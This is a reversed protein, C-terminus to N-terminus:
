CGKIEKENNHKDFLYYFYLLIKLAKRRSCNENVKRTQEISRELSESTMPSRSFEMILNEMNKNSLKKTVKEFRTDWDDTKKIGFEKISM